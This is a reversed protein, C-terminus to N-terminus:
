QQVKSAPLTTIAFKPLSTLVAPLEVRFTAGGAPRNFGTVRGHHEQIIGYCISLGLGTGKGVPKTTYFPDFVMKPEKIGPGTDAIDVVVFRQEARSQITLVGGGAEELADLANNILNFFVQILQNSDGRVTPLASGFEEVIRINKNKRLELHVLNLAGKMMENLDLPAKDGPIQRAFSLLNGVLHKIRRAQDRIKAALSRQREGLAPDDHLLEAYGLIGTLPNNIEHAAGAALHGLSVLKENQVLQAQLRQLDQVSEQSSQLLRLRDRDVLRLRLFALLVAPVILALTVSLRFERVALPAHSYWLSWLALAPMSVVAGIAVEAPWNERRFGKVVESSARWRRALFGATGLWLFSAILPLDYLSGTYYVKRDIALNLLLASTGYLLAAGCLHAYIKRWQSKAQLTLMGLGAVLLLNQALSLGNYADGYLKDNPSIYQWPIVIFLYLYVWWLLLLSFDISGYRFRLEGAKRHPALALAGLMPVPHLFFIVDGIFPNPVPQHEVVEIFTWLMQGAMWMACGLGFLMWFVDNRWDASGSNLLLGSIAFLPVACQLLDGFATLHSGRPIVASGLAYGGLLVAWSLPVWWRSLWDTASDGGSATPDSPM